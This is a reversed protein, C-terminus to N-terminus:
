SMMISWDSHKPIVCSFKATVLDHRLNPARATHWWKSLGLRAYVAPECKQFVSNQNSWAIEHPWYCFSTSCGLFVVILRWRVIVESGNSCMDIAPHIWPELYIATLSIRNFFLILPLVNKNQECKLFNFYRYYFNNNLRYNSNECM